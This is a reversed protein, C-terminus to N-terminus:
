LDNINIRKIDVAMIETGSKIELQVKSGPEGILRYPIEEAGHAMDKLETGNISLIVDGVKIEEYAAPTKLMVKTVVIQGDKVEAELGTTGSAMKEILDVSEKLHKIEWRVIKSDQVEFKEKTKIVDVGALQFLPINNKIILTMKSNDIKNKEAIEMKNQKDINLQLMEAITAKGQMQGSDTSLIADEAVHSMAKNLDGQMYADMFSQTVQETIKYDPKTKYKGSTCGTLSISLGIILISFFVMKKYKGLLRKVRENELDRTEM